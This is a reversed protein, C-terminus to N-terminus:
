ELIPIYVAPYGEAGDLEVIECDAVDGNGIQTEVCTFDMAKGLVAMPHDPNEYDM